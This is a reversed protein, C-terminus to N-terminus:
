WVFPVLAKREKPYDPFNEQYWRHNSLARPVLNAFTWTAFVLGPISWTAIAWGIWEMIEGLYNPCSILEYLGGRPIVYGTEGRQRLNRLTRDAGRNILLGALFLVLGIIFRADRLWQMPYGGSFRFLYQGNIFANGANFIFGAAIVLLPMRKQGNRLLFPYVFARHVYHVEWLIFFILLPLNRFGQGAIFLYAFLLASPFEMMMWGLRSTTTLGWGKRLYRGYPASVFLLVVFVIVASSIWALLVFRYLEEESMPVMLQHLM